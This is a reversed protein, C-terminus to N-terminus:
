KLYKKKAMELKNRLSLWQEKAFPIRSSNLRKLVREAEDARRERREDKDGDLQAPLTSYEECLERVLVATKYM